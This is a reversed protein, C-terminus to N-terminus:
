RSVTLAALLSLTLLAPLLPLATLTLLATLLLRLVSLALALTLTTLLATLAASAIASLGVSAAATLDSVADGACCPIGAAAIAVGGHEAVEVRPVSVYRAARNRRLLAGAGGVGLAFDFLAQVQQILNAARYLFAGFRLLLQLRQDVLHLVQVGASEGAIGRENLLHALLKNGVHVSELKLKALLEILIRAARNAICVRRLHGRTVLRGNGLIVSFEGASSV